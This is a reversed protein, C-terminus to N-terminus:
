RSSVKNKPETSTHVVLLLFSYPVQWFQFYTLSKYRVDEEDSSDYEYEDGKESTEGGNQAKFNRDHKSKGSIKPNDNSNESSSSSERQDKNSDASDEDGEEDGEDEEEQSDDEQDDSDEELESYESSDSADSDEDADSRCCVLM